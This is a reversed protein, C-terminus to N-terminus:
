SGRLDIWHTQLKSAGACAAGGPNAEAGTEQKAADFAVVALPTRRTLIVGHDREIAVRPTREKWGCTELAKSIEALWKRDRGLNAVVLLPGAAMGAAGAPTPRVGLRPPGAYHLALNVGTVERRSLVAIAEGGFAATAEQALAGFPLSLRDGGSTIKLAFAIPLVVGLIVAIRGALRWADPRRATISTLAIWAPLPTLLPILYRSDVVHVDLALITIATAGLGVILTRALLRAFTTATFARATEDSESPPAADPGTPRARLQRWGVAAAICLPFTSLVLGYILWAFGDVGVYPIDFPAPKDFVRSLRETSTAAHELAWVAHPAILVAALGLSAVLKRHVITGRVDSISVAAVTLAGLFVLFNYKALVGAAIAVGLLLYSSWNGKRLCRECAYLTAVSATHVLVSHSLTIQMQWIAQPMLMLAALAVLAPGDRGAANRVMAITLLWAIANLTFKVVALAVVFQEGTVQHALLVLWTYLPPQSGDYGFAFYLQDYFHAEDIEVNASLQRLGALLVFLALITLALGIAGAATQSDRVRDANPGPAAM